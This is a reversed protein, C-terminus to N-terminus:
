SAGGARPARARRAGVPTYAHRAPTKENKTPRAKSPACSRTPCRKTSRTPCPSGVAFAAWSGGRPPKRHPRAPTPPGPSPRARWRRRSFARIYAARARHGPVYAEGCACRGMGEVRQRRSARPAYEFDITTTGRTLIRGCRPCPVTPPAKFHVKGGHVLASDRAVVPPLHSAITALRNAGGTDFLVDHEYMPATLHFVSRVVSFIDPLDRRLEPEALLPEVFVMKRHLDLLRDRAANLHYRSSPTVTSFAGIVLDIEPPPSMEQESRLLSELDRGKPEVVGVSTTVQRCTDLLWPVSELRDQFVFFMAPRDTEKLAFTLYDTLQEDSLRQM